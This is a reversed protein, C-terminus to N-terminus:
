GVAMARMPLGSHFRAKTVDFISSKVQRESPTAFTSNSNGLDTRKGVMGTRVSLPRIKGRLPSDFQAAGSIASALDNPALSFIRCPTTTGVSGDFCM